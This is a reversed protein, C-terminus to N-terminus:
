RQAIAAVTKAISLSATLGPSEIGFLNVLGVTGHTREDQIVFDMDPKSASAIKPRIGTYGECLMDPNLGPFYSQIAEIFAARRGDDFSYDLKDIWRIDPGFKVQGGMDLTVHVGLAGPPAVPYVLHSFPSAGNLVYYHGVAFHSDPAHEPSFGEISRATAPANHGSCNILWRTVVESGDNLSVRIGREGESVGGTMECSPVFHGGAMQLDHLLALMFAHSDIIGTSPSLLGAVARVSPELRAVEDGDLWILDNVGNLSASARYRDLAGTESHSTAVIIKGLRKHPIDREVCYEYLLEKGQVCHQAKLSGSPYYIGAHIVESNRSSTETGFTEARDIVFTDNGALQFERAVALGVVGAGVVLCDCRYDM